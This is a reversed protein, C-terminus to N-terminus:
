TTKRAESRFYVPELLLLGFFFGALALLMPVVGEAGSRIALMAVVGVVAMRFLTSGAWVALFGTLEGRYRLLLSFAAVQIPLAVLGAVLVGSRAAPDLWPWLAATSAAVIAAGAVAYRAAASM